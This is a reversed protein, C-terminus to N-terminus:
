LPIHTQGSYMPSASLDLGSERLKVVRLLQQSTTNLYKMM